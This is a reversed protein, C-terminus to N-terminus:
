NDAFKFSVGPRIKNRDYWGINMELAFMAKKRSPYTKPRAAGMVAPQMDIVENLTKERGFYGISLPILTNQMWFSRKEEDDFIFLMGTDSPLKERFMLGYARREDTDAIEVVITRGSIKIRRKKFVPRESASPEAGMTAFASSPVLAIAGIAVFLFLVLIFVPTRLNRM